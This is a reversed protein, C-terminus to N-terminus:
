GSRPPQSTAKDSSPASRAAACGTRTGAWRCLARSRLIMIAVFVRLVGSYLVFPSRRGRGCKECVIVSMAHGAKGEGAAVEELEGGGTEEAGPKGFKVKVTGEAGEQRRLTTHGEAADGQILLRGEVGPLQVDIATILDNGDCGHDVPIDAIGNIVLPVLQVAFAVGIGAPHLGDLVVVLLGGELDRGAPLESLDRYRIGDCPKRGREPGPGSVSDIKRGCVPDGAYVHVAILFADPILDIVAVQLLGEINGGILHAQDGIVLQRQQRRPNRIGELADVDIRGALRHGGEFALSGHQHRVAGAAARAGSSRQAIELRKMFPRGDMHGIITLGARPMAVIQRAHGPHGEEGAGAHREVARVPVVIVAPRPAM